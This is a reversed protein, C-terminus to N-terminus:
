DIPETMNEIVALFGISAMHWEVPEGDLGPWMVPESLIQAGLFRREAVSEVVATGATAIHRLTLGDRVRRGFVSLLGEYFESMTDIFRAEVIQMTETVRERREPPLGDLSVSLAMFTRWAASSSIDDYNQKAGVRIAERLVADRGARNPTGDANVMRHANEAIVQQAVQITGPSFAAGLSDEPHVLRLILETILNEKGGFASFASSRPVGVRRILEEMNLHYVSVTLGSERLLAEAADLVRGRLEDKPMRKARGAPRSWDGDSTAAGSQVTSGFDQADPIHVM